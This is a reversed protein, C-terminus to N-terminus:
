KNIEIELNDLFNNEISNTSKKIKLKKVKKLTFDQNTNEALKPSFTLNHDLLDARM